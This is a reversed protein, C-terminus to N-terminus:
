VHARGIQGNLWAAGPWWGMGHQVVVSAWVVGMSIQATGGWGLRALGGRRAEGEGSWVM